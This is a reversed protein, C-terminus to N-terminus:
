ESPILVGEPDITYDEPYADVTELVEYVTKWISYVTEPELQSLLCSGNTQEGSWVVLIDDKGSLAKGPLTEIRDVTGCSDYCGNLPIAPCDDWDISPLSICNIGKQRLVRVIANRIYSSLAGSNCHLADYLREIFANDDADKQIRSAVKMALELGQTDSTILEPKGHLDIVDFLDKKHAVIAIDRGPLLHIKEGFIVSDEDGDIFLHEYLTGKQTKITFRGETRPGFPGDPFFEILKM